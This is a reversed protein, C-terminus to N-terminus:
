NQPMRVHFKTTHFLINVIMMVVLNNKTLKSKLVPAKMIGSKQRVKTLTAIMNTSIKVSITTSVIREIKIIFTETNNVM